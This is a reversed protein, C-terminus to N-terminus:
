PDAGEHVAPLAWDGPEASCDGPPKTFDLARWVLAESFTAVVAGDAKPHIGSYWAVAIRRALEDDGRGSLLRELRAGDGAAELRDMLDGALAPDLADEPFGTLRASLARFRKLPEAACASRVVGLAPVSALNAVFGRRSMSTRGKRGTM